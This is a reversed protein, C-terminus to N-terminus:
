AAEPLSYPGELITQLKFESEQDWVMVRNETRVLRIMSTLRGGMSMTMCVFVNEVCAKIPSKFRNLEKSANNPPHNRVGKEHAQSEFGGLCL